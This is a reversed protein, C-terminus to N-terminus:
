SRGQPPASLYDFHRVVSALVVAVTATGWAAGHGGDGVQLNLLWSKGEKLM